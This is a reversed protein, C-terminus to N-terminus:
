SFLSMIDQHKDASNLGIVHTTSKNSQQSSVWISPIKKGMGIMGLGAFSNNLNQLDNMVDDSSITQIKSAVEAAYVPTGNLIQILVDRPLFPANELTADANIHAMGLVDDVQSIGKSAYVSAAEIPGLVHTHQLDDHYNDNDHCPNHCKLLVCNASITPSTINQMHSLLMKDELPSFTNNNTVSVGFNSLQNFTSNNSDNEVIISKEKLRIMISLANEQLTTLSREWGESSSITVMQALGTLYCMKTKRSNSLLEVSVQSKTGISPRTSSTHRGTDYTAQSFSLSHTQSYTQSYTQSQNEITQNDDNVDADDEDQHNSVNPDLHSARCLHRLKYSDLLKLASQSPSINSDLAKWTSKQLLDCIQQRKSDSINNNNMCMSEIETWVQLLYWCSEHKPCLCVLREALDLACRVIMVSKSVEIGRLRSLMDGLLEEGVDTLLQLITMQNSSLNSTMDAHHLVESLEDSIGIETLLLDVSESYFNWVLDLAKQKDTSSKSILSFSNMSSTAQLPLLWIMTKLIAKRSHIRLSQLSTMMRMDEISRNIRSLLLYISKLLIMQTGDAMLSGNSNDNSASSFTSSVVSELADLDLLSNTEKGLSDISLKKNSNGDEVSILSMSSFTQAVLRIVRLISYFDGLNSVNSNKTNIINFYMSFPQLHKHLAESCEKCIDIKRNIMMAILKEKQIMKLGMSEDNGCLSVIAECSVRINSSKVVINLLDTIILETIEPTPNFALLKTSARIAQLSSLLNDHNPFEIAFSLSTHISDVTEIPNLQSLIGLLIITHRAVDPYSSNCGKQIKAIYPMIKGIFKKYNNDDFTEYSALFHCLGSIISCWERLKLDNDRQNKSGFIMSKRHKSEEPYPTDELSQIFFLKSTEIQDYDIMIKKTTAFFSSSSTGGFTNRSVPIMRRYPQSSWIGLYRHIACSFLSDRCSKKLTMLARYIGLTRTDDIGWIHLFENIICLSLRWIKKEEPKDGCDKILEVLILLFENIDKLSHQHLSWGSSIYGHFTRLLALYKKLMKSRGSSFKVIEKALDNVVSEM